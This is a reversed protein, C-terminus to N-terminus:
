AHLHQRRKGHFIVYELWIFSLKFTYDCIFGCSMWHKSCYESSYGGGGGGRAHRSGYQDRTGQSPTNSDRSTAAPNNNDRSASSTNQNTWGGVGGPKPGGALSRIKQGPAEEKKQM